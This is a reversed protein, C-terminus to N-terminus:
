LKWNTIISDLKESTGETLIEAHGSKMADNFDKDALLGKVFKNWFMKKDSNNDTQLFLGTANEKMALKEKTKNDIDVLTLRNDDALLKAYKPTVIALDIDGNIISSQVNTNASFPVKYIKNIDLNNSKAFTNIFDVQPSSVHAWTLRGPNEWQPSSLIFYLVCPGSM